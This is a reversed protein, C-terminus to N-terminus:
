SSYSRLEGVNERLNIVQTALTRVQMSVSGIDSRTDNTSQQLNSLEKTPTQMADFKRKKQPTSAVGSKQKV